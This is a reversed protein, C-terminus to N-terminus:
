GNHAEKEITAEIKELYDEVDRLLKGQQQAPLRDAMQRIMKALRSGYERAVEVDIISISM